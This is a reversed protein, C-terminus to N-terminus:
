STRERRAREDAYHDIRTVGSPEPVEVRLHLRALAAPTLGLDGELRSLAAGHRPPGAMETTLMRCYRAVIVPAIRQAHWMAAVPRSWLDRWLAAEDERPKGFPWKPARIGSGAAPLTAYSPAANRRRPIPKGPDAPM